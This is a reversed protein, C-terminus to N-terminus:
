KKMDLDESGETAKRRYYQEIIDRYHPPFERGVNQLAEERQKPALSGWGEKAALHKRDVEGPGKQAAPRSDQMPNNSQSGKPNGQQQQQQKEQDEEIKKIMKDLSAIVDGEVKKVKPGARGLDLRRHIDEMRRAIHDLTEAEFANLDSQMLLAVAVYRRPSFDSGDILSGVAKLGKEKNDKDLLRHYVVGQFFLLEAPAVVEGTQLGDLQELAEDFWQGEVLWRGLFLRMNSAEFRTTEDSALWHEDPLLVHTRPRSCLDVLTAARPDVLAFTNALRDLLDGGSATETIGEWLAAAQPAVDPNMQMVWGLAEDRAAAAHEPQWTPAKHIAPALSLPADPLNGSPAPAGWSSWGGCVVILCFAMPGVAKSSVKM